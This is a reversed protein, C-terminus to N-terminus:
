VSIDPTVRYTGGLDKTDYKTKPKVLIKNLYSMYQSTYQIGTQAIRNYARFCYNFDEESINLSKIFDGFRESESDFVKIYGVLENIKGKSVPILNKNKNPLIRNTDYYSSSATKDGRQYNFMAVTRERDEMHKNYVANIVEEKEVPTMESFSKDLNNVINQIERISKDVMTKYLNSDNKMDKFFEDFLEKNVMTSKFIESAVFNRIKIYLNKFFNKVMEAIKHIREKIDKVTIGETAVCKDDPIMYSELTLIYQDINM